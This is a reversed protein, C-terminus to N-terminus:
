ILHKRVTARVRSRGGQLTKLGTGLGGSFSARNAARVM